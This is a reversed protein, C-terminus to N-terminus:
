TNVLLLLILQLNKFAIKKFDSKQKIYNHYNEKFITSQFINNTKPLIIYQM